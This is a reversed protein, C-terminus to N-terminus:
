PLEKGHPVPWCVASPAVHSGQASLARADGGGRRHYYGLIGVAM